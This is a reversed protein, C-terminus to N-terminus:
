EAELCVTLSYCGELELDLSVKEILVQYLLCRVRSETKEGGKLYESFVAATRLSKKEGLPVNVEIDSYKIQSEECRRLNDLKLVRVRPSRM